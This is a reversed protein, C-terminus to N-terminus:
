AVTETVNSSFGNGDFHVHFFGRCCTDISKPAFQKWLIALWATVRLQTWTYFELDQTLDLRPLPLAHNLNSFRM